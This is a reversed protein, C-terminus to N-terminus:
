LLYERKCRDRRAYIYPLKEFIGRRNVVVFVDCPFPIWMKETEIMIIIGVRKSQWICAFEEPASNRDVMDLTRLLIFKTM